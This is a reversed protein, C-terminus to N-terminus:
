AAAGRCKSTQSMGFYGGVSPLLGKTRLRPVSTKSNRKKSTKILARVIQEQITWLFYGHVADDIEDAEHDDNEKDEAKQAKM